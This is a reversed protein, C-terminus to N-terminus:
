NRWYEFNWPRSGSVCYHTFGYHFITEWARKAEDRLNGFETLPTDNGASDRRFIVWNNPTNERLSLDDPVFENCSEGMKPGEPPRGSVLLYLFSPHPRGIFCSQAMSYHKIVALSGRAEAEDSLFDFMWHNGDVIKWRGNIQKVEATMPNFRICDEDFPLTKSFVILEDGNGLPSSLTIEGQHNGFDNSDATFETGSDLVTLRSEGARKVAVKLDNISQPTNATSISPFGTSWVFKTAGPIFTNAYPLTPNRSYYRVRSNIVSALVDLRGSGLGHKPNTDSCTLGPVCPCEENLVDNPIPHSNSRLWDEVKAASWLPYQSWIMSAAGAVLPASMSTGTTQTLHSHTGGDLYTSLVKVGPAGMDVWEGCSSTTYRKDDGSTENKTTNGVVIFGNSGATLGAPTAFERNNAAPYIEQRNSNNGAATVVLFGADLAKKVAQKIAEIDTAHANVGTALVLIKALLPIAHDIGCLLSVASLGVSSRIRLPVIKSGWSVGAVSESGSNDSLAAAIGAMLTGHGTQDEPTSGEAACNLGSVRKSILEPHDLDMGTDLIAIMMQGRTIFSSQPAFTDWLNTQQDALNDAPFATGALFLELNPDAFAVEDYAEIREIAEHISSSTAKGAIRLQYVDVNPLFGIITAGEATAIERARSPSVNPLFGVLVENAIVRSRSKTDDVWESEKTPPRVGFPLNAFEFTFFGSVLTEGSRARFFKVTEVKSFLTASGTYILDGALIDEGSGNDRLKAISSNITNGFQDVEDLVLSGPPTVGSVTTKFVVKKKVGIPLAGPTSSPIHLVARNPMPNVGDVVKVSLSSTDSEGTEIVKATTKVTYTGPKLGRILENAVFKAPAASQWGEQPYNTAIEIGGNEPSVIQSLVIRFTRGDDNSFNVFHAFPQKTGVKVSISSPNQKLTIAPQPVIKISSSNALLPNSGVVTAHLIGNGPMKFGSITQFALGTNNTHAIREPVPGLGTMKFMVKADSIPVGLATVTASIPLSGNVPTKNTVPGLAIADAAADIRLSVRKGRFAYLRIKLRKRNTDAKLEVPFKCADVFLNFGFPSALSQEDNLEKGEEDLSVLTVSAGLVRESLSTETKAGNSLTLTASGSKPVNFDIYDPGQGSVVIQTRLIEASPASEAKQEPLTWTACASLWLFMTVTVLLAVKHPM